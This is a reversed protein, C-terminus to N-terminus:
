RTPKEPSKSAASCIAAYPNGFGTSRASGRGRPRRELDEADGTQVASILERAVQAEKSMVFGELKSGDLVAREAHVEASVRRRASVSFRSVQRNERPRRRAGRTSDGQKTPGPFLASASGRSLRM